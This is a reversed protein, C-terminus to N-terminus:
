VKRLGKRSCKLVIPVDDARHAIWGITSKCRHRHRSNRAQSPRWAAMMEAGSERLDLKDSRGNPQHVVAEMSVEELSKGPLELVAFLTVEEGRAPAMQSARARLLAGGVVRASLAFESSLRPSARLTIKWPGPKPNQFGYGLYVLSTPDEVKILGHQEPTLTIVNGTAGRVTVDLSRSPDFLAFSAIAVQDLNVDVETTGGAEVRGKFVQTFQAPISSEAEVQPDNEDPFEGARKQLHPFVFKRFVEDSKTMDTHLVPLKSVTGPIASASNLGVIMDSPVGSCPAKFGEVIPDGALM